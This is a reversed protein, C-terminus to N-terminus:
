RGQLELKLMHAGTRWVRRHLKGGDKIHILLNLARRVKNRSRSLRAAHELLSRASPSKLGSMEALQVLCNGIRRSDKSQRLLPHGLWVSTEAWYFTGAENKLVPWHHADELMAELCDAAMKVLGHDGKLGLEEHRIATILSGSTLALGCGVRDRPQIGNDGQLIENIRRHVIVDHQTMKELDSSASGPHKRYYVHTNPLYSPCVGQGVARVYLDWDEACRIAPDFVGIQHFMQRRFLYAHPAGMNFHFLHIHVQSNPPYWKGVIKPRGQRDLRSFLLTDGVVILCQHHSRLYSVQTSVKHPALLDDADLFQIFEGTSMSLGYNRAASPGQNEQRVHLIQIGFRRNVEPTDDRSGDDVVIVEIDPYDHALVNQLTLPLFEAANYAPIIVSVRGEKSDAPIKEKGISAIMVFYKRFVSDNLWFFDYLKGATIDIRDGV